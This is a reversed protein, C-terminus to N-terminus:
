NLQEFIKILEEDDIGMFMLANEADPKLKHDPYESIFREYYIRALGRNQFYNEYIFAKLFIATAYKDFEPYKEEIRSLCTIAQKPEKFNMGIEAAKFLYEAAQEDDPYKDVFEKYKDLLEMAIEPDADIKQYLKNETRVLENRMEEKQKEAKKESNNCSVAVFISISLLIFIKTKM